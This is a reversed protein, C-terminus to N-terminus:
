DRSLNMLNLCNLITIDGTLNQMGFTSIDRTLDGMTTIDRTLDGFTSIDRTLDGFTSIDRTISTIDRTLDGMSTIDRALNILKPITINTRSPGAEADSILAKVDPINDGRHMNQLGFTSIDRTLNNFPITM